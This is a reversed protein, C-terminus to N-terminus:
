PSPQTESPAARTSPAPTFSAVVEGAQEATATVWRVNSRQLVLQRGREVSPTVLLSSSHAVLDGGCLQALHEWVIPEDLVTGVFVFPHSTLDECLRHYLPDAATLRTAYQSTSLTAHSLDRISGNLHVVDLADLRHWHLEDSTSICRLVRPLSFRRAVAEDLDDISLTYIRRWPAGFWRAYFSPITEENVTLRDELYSGWDLQGDGAVEFLDPLTTGDPPGEDFLLRWLEAILEVSRPLARGIRDQAGASFGAGTFLVADGSTALDGLLDLSM